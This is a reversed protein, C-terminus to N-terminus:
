AVDTGADLGYWANTGESYFIGVTNAAVNLSNNAGRLNVQKGLPPYILVSKDTVMNIVVCMAGNVCSPLQVGKANDSGAILNVGEALAGATAINGGNANVTGFPIRPSKGLTISAANTGITIAGKTAGAGSDILIAGATGNTVDGAGSIISIAGGVNGATPGAGGTVTVAGGDFAGAAAVGGAVAIAGGASSNGTKGTVGLSSDSGTIDDATISGAITTTRKAATLLVSVYADGSAADKTALGMLDGTANDAAGTSVTGVVPSNTASWYVADGASFTDTTKPVRYIGSVQLAGLTLVPIDYDAIMPISGIVVVDGAYVPNTPPTYPISDGPLSRYAPSQTQAM